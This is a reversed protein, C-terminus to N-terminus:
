LGVHEKHVESRDPLAYWEPVEVIVVQGYVQPDATPAFQRVDM